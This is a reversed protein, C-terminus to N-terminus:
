EYAHSNNINEAITEKQGEWYGKEVIGNKLLVRLTEFRRRRNEM